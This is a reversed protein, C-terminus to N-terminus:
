EAQAGGAALEGSPGDAGSTGDCVGDAPRTFEKRHMVFYFIGLPGPVLLAIRWLFLVTGGFWKGVKAAVGFVVSAVWEGVGLGGLPLFPLGTAALALPALVIYNSFPVSATGLAKGFLFFAVITALHGVFSIATCYLSMLPRRRVEQIAEDAPDLAKAVKARWGTGAMWGEFRRRRRARLRPIMLIAAAVLALIYIGAAIGVFVAIEKKATLVAWAFPIQSGILLFLAVVGYMRDLGISMISAAKKDSGPGAALYYAKMADGGISGFLFANFLIGIMQLRFAAYFSLRIGQMRVVSWWRLTGAIPVLLLVAFGGVVFWPAAQFAGSIRGFSVRGSYVVYGFVALGLSAKALKWLINKARDTM